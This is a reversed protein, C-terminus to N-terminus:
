NMGCNKVYDVNRVFNRTSEGGRVWMTPIIHSVNQVNDELCPILPIFRNIHVGSLSGTSKSNNTIQGCMLESKVDPNKLTSQGAGMYPSGPFLRTGLHKGNRKTQSTSIFGNQGYLLASENDILQSKGVNNNQYVGVNQTSNFYENRNNNLRVSFNIYNNISQNDNAEKIKECSDNNIRTMNNISFNNLKNSM